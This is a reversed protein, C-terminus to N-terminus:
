NMMCAYPVINDDLSNSQDHVVITRYNPLYAPPHSAQQYMLTIKQITYETSPVTYVTYVASTGVDRGMMM